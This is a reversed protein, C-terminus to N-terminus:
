LFHSAPAKSPPSPCAIQPTTEIFPESKPLQFRIPPFCEAVLMEAATISLGNESINEVIAGNGEGWEVYTLSELTRRVHVRRDRSQPLRGSYEPTNQSESM